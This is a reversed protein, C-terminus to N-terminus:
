TVSWTRLHNQIADLSLAPDASKVLTTLLSQPISRQDQISYEIYARINALIQSTNSESNNPEALSNPLAFLAAQEMKEAELELKMISARLPNSKPMARRAARIPNLVDNQWFRSIAIAKELRHELLLKEHGLWIAFLLLNTDLEYDDQLAIVTKRVDEREWLCLSFQWFPNDLEINELSEEKM